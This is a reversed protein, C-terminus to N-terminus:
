RQRVHRSRPKAVLAVGSAAPDHAKDPEAKREANDYLEYFVQQGAAADSVLRNLAAVTSPIDINTHYPLLADIDSLRAQEDVDRDNWPLLRRAFRKFAPHRLLEGLTSEPTLAAYSVSGTATSPTGAAGRSPASCLVAAALCERRSLRASM